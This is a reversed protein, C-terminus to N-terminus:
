RSRAYNRATQLVHTPHFFTASYGTGSHRAAEDRAMARMRAEDANIPADDFEHAADVLLGFMDDNADADSMDFPLWHRSGDDGRRGVLCLVITEGTPICHTWSMVATTGVVEPHEPLVGDPALVSFVSLCSSVYIADCPYVLMGTIWALNQMDDDGYDMSMGTADSAGGVVAAMPPGTEADGVVTFAYRETWFRAIATLDNM